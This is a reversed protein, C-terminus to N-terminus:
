FSFSTHLFLTKTEATTSGSKPALDQYDISFTTKSNVDYSVGFITLLTKPDKSDDPQFSDMRGILAFKAAASKPDSFAAPRLVVFGSTLKGTVDATTRTAATTGGETTETRQGYGVGFTLRPDKSGVFVGFRNRTLGDSIGSSQFKSATHGAYVYPSIALNKLITSGNALPTLTVRGAFDKFRDTEASGYGPGNTITAYVEGMKNPLTVLGAAGVDASSFFGAREVDTQSIYRPWFGEEHDILMTHLVGFRALANFGKTGGIDNAFNWQLYAYKIRVTWGSYYGGATTNLVDTTVRISTRDGTPMKFTLYVRELDFKNAAKGANAAKASSDTRQQYNAYIIGSFDFGPTAPNQAAASGAAIAGVAASLLLRRAFSALSM